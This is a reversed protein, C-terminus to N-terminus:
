GAEGKCRYIDFTRGGDRVETVGAVTDGGMRAADNRALTALEKQVKAQSRSFLGVKQRTTTHVKGLKECESVASVDALRVREAEPTLKVWTCASALSVFAVTFALV